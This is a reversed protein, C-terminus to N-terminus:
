GSTCRCSAAAKASALGAILDDRNVGVRADRTPTVSPYSALDRPAAAPSKLVLRRADAGAQSSKQILRREV